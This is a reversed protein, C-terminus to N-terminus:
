EEKARAGLIVFPSLTDGGGAPTVPAALAPQGDIRLGCRFSIQDEHWGPANSRDLAIERRLGILYASFDYLGIDGQNGLAPLKESVILPRGFASLQGGVQTVAPVFSGGATSVAVTLLM